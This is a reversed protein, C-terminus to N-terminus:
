YGHPNEKAMCDTLMSTKPTSSTLLLNSSTLICILTIFIRELYSNQIDISRFVLKDEIATYEMHRAFLEVDDVPGPFGVGDPVRAPLDGANVGLVPLGSAEAKAGEIRQLPDLRM